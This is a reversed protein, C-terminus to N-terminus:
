SSQAPDAMHALDKIEIMLGSYSIEVRYLLIRGAGARVELFYGM